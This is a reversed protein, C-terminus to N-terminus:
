KMKQLNADVFKEFVKVIFNKKKRKSDVFGLVVPVLSGFFCAIFDWMTDVLGNKQMNMGFISDMAFEFIEWTVAITMSFAFAFISIFFPSLSLKVNTSKNMLFVLSYGFYGILVGSLGHLGVDWWWLLEYFDFIEGLVMAAFVFLIIVLNLEPTLVFKFRKSLFVPFVMLAAIFISTLIILYEQELYSIIAVAAILALLIIEIMLNVREIGTMNKFKINKM